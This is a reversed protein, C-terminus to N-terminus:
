WLLDDPVVFEKYPDEEDDDQAAKVTMEFDNLVILMSPMLGKVKEATERPVIEYKGEFRVIGILGRVLRRRFSASSKISKVTDADLFNFVEEGPELLLRNSMILQKVQATQARLDAEYKLKQNLGRDREAKERLQAQYTMDTSNYRGTSGNKQEKHKERQAKKIQKENVLGAKLLQDKLGAMHLL